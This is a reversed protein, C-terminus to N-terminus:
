IFPTGVVWGVLSKRIGKTVPKVRHWVQSPFVIISGKKFTFTTTKSLDPEPHPDCIEFDGGEYEDNLCLTFSLKRITNNRYPKVHNDTHWNYHDGKNYVTYQLSEFEKLSFNWNSEKNASQVFHSLTKQLEKDNLWSIKSSRNASNGDAIEAEKITALEGDKIIKNCFYEPIISEKIHYINEFMSSQEALLSRGNLLM